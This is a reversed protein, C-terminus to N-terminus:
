VDVFFVNALDDLLHYDMEKQSELSSYFNKLWPHKLEATEFLLASSEFEQVLEDLDCRAMQKQTMRQKWAYAVAVCQWWLFSKANWGPKTGIYLSKAGSPVKWHEFLLVSEFDIIKMEAVTGKRKRIRCLINSTEDYGPRIDPHIIDLNAMPILVNRLLEIFAAWLTFLDVGHAGPRLINYDESLDKMITILGNPANYVALLVDDLKPRASPVTSSAVYRLADWAETPDTL